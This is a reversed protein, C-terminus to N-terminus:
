KLPSLVEGYRKLLRVEDNEARQKAEFEAKKLEKDVEFRHKEIALKEKEIEIKVREIREMTELEMQKLRQKHEFRAKEVEPDMTRTAYEQEVGKTTVILTAYKEM